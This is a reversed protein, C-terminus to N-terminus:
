KKNDSSDKPISKSAKADAMAQYKQVLDKVNQDGPLEKQLRSFLEVLKNYDGNNEYIDRLVVYPNRQRQFDRPNDDLMKLMMPEIESTISLYQKIGGASYYLSGLDNLLEYRMQILNRPLKEEMRDLTAVADSKKGKDLYNIALRLFSNRYNQALRKHNNNMFITPDNLGRFKFGPQYSRSYEEPENFLQDKMVKENVYYASSKRQKPVLRFAMGEMQLYEDLGLRANDSCTVAFYIPREWNNAKIFDLVVIDQIRVVPIKGYSTTNKMMWTINGSNSDSTGTIKYVSDTNEADYMNYDKYANDPVPLTMERPEWKSPGIRNIEKDSLTMAIAKSDYPTTNKLQRIYWPTNLLSLNAVRVDRRVGEVDQLYWLPFTDNDGNTFLVADPAASQLLNYAYDWPVYNNSRDHTFYNSAFMTVPVAAFMLVGSIIYVPKLLKSEKFQSYILDFIGRTGLAIWISYVFFAGVYFYDRERPQPQQQNQYFATLYGLFIFMAMMVSAMKWDRKFQYYIGFLGLLFPIAFLQAWNIGAGQVTSVRGIYNWGLYRNFMHQMQYNWFFDLDSSYNKYINQQHGEQSFRRKFTPFDGYQERNMYSHFESMTRPDNLNIPTDQNARIMTMSYTSYGLLIFLISKAFLNTTPKDTKKSWYIIYGVLAFIGMFVIANMTFDNGSLAYILKPIYKVFGPYVSLLIVGGIMIPLYFSNRQFIKKWMAVMYVLWFVGILTVFKLDAAKYEEPSPPRSVTASAWIFIAILITGAAQILFIYSTKKLTEEDTLYKRFMITMVIPVMALVSMLHVGISLGLLYAIMILYKENDPEDAKENWLLMLWTVFAIFFASMAYVEAEAANFWFTDAFALSLAGIAAALYTGFANLLSDYKNKNYNEILKVAILYLFMVTFASSMVSITNVRFAINEAFPIISLLRGLILFFPTGPPHPVQLGYSSAIFEGCDWFSVSPQVTLFYVSGAIIFVILGILRYMNKQNM